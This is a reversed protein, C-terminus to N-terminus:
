SRGFEAVLDDVQAKREAYAAADAAADAAAYAARAAAARAADAAAYAARAAAARAAYAAAYAARAAAADAAAYAAADAAYAAARLDVTDDGEVWRFIADLCDVVRADTTHVAVRRCCPLLARVVRRRVTVNACDLSRVCWWADAAGNSVAVDGVTVQHDPDFKGDAYGLATLLTAWGSVCPHAARIDALTISLM